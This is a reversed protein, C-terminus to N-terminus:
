VEGLTSVGFLFSIYQKAKKVVETAKFAKKGGSIESDANCEVYWTIVFTVFAM